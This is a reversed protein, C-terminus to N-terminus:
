MISTKISSTMYIQIQSNVMYNVICRMSCMLFFWLCGQRGVIREIDSRWLESPICSHLNNKLHHTYEIQSLLITINKEKKLVDFYREYIIIDTMMMMIAKKFNMKDMEYKFEDNNM